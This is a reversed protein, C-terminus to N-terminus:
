VRVWMLLVPAVICAGVGIREAEKLVELEPYGAALGEAATYEAVERTRALELV